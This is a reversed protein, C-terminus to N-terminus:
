GSSPHKVPDSVGPMNDSEGTENAARAAAEREWSIREDAAEKLVKAVWQALAIKDDMFLAAVVVAIKQRRTAAGNPNVELEAPAKTSTITQKEEGYELFHLTAPIKSFLLEVILQPREDLKRMLRKLLQRVLEDWEKFVPKSKDLGEPGKIMKYLLSIIDLRYLIVTLDQKFAVRYFFRHARKLQELSLDKYYNTFAVFTDVCKQTAFKASFRKFDFKREKSVRAAEALEETESEDDAGEAPPQVPQEKDKKRRSRVQLDVNEKSYRELIRLFVHSLETCADLYGFGQDKYGRLISLVRDHTTEEYFIRNQINEAIEQDEELPSQAMEQVTMLIQTFCRIGANLDQWEKHDYSSQMYRNLSIFTEQNLVSAVLAFSDPEMDQGSNKKRWAELQAKRRVREAELFWSILFFFQRYDAENVREAEREIAKRLHTFLPNFGSDLFEEVFVRLHRTASSTLTVPMDFNEFSLKDDKTRQTPKNWRKTEDM